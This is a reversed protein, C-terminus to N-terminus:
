LLFTRSCPTYRGGPHARDGTVEDRVQQIADVAFDAQASIQDRLQTVTTTLHQIQSTMAIQDRAMTKSECDRVYLAQQFHERTEVDRQVSEKDRRQADESSAKFLNATQQMFVDLKQDQSNHKTSISDNLTGFINMLWEKDVVGSQSSSINSSHTTTISSSLTEGHHHEETHPRRSHRTADGSGDAAAPAPARPGASIGSAFRVQSLSRTRSGSRSSCRIASAGLTGGIVRGINRGAYQGLPEAISGLQSAAIDGGVIEGLAAGAIAGATATVTTVLAEKGVEAAREILTPPGPPGSTYIIPPFENGFTPQPRWDTGAPHGSSALVPMCTNDITDITEAALMSIPSTHSTMSQNPSASGITSPPMPREAHEAHVNASNAAPATNRSHIDCSYARINQAGRTVADGLQSLLDLDIDQAGTSHIEGHQPSSINYHYPMKEDEVDAVLEPDIMWKQDDSLAGQVPTGWPLIDLPGKFPDNVDQSKFYRLGDEPSRLFTNIPEWLGAGNLAGVQIMTVAENIMIPIYKSGIPVQYNVIVSHEEFGAQGGPHRPMTGITTDPGGFSRQGITGNQQHNEHNGGHEPTRFEAAEAAPDAVVDPLPIKGGTTPMESPWQIESTIPKGTIPIEGLTQASGCAYSDGALPAAGRPQPWPQEMAQQLPMAYTAEGGRHTQSRRRGDVEPEAKSQDLNPTVLNDQTRTSRIDPNWTIRSRSSNRARAGHRSIQSTPVKDQPSLPSDASKPRLLNEGIEIPSKGRIIGRKVLRSLASGISNSRTTAPPTEYM